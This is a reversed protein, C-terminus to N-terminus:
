DKMFGIELDDPYEGLTKKMEAVKGRLMEEASFTDYFGEGERNWRSDKKSRIWWTGHGGM